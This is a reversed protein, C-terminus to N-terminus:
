KNPEEKVTPALESDPNLAYESLVELDINNSLSLAHLKEMSDMLTSPISGGREKSLWLQQNQLPHADDKPHGIYLTFPATQAGFTCIATFKKM